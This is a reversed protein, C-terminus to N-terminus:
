RSRCSRPCISVQPTRHARGELPGGSTSRARACSKSALDVLIRGPRSSLTSVSHFAMNAEESAWDAAAVPRLSQASRATAM